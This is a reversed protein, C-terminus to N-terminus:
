FLCVVLHFCVVQVHVCEFSSLLFVDPRETILTEKEFLITM